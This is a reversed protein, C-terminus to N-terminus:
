TRAEPVLYPTPGAGGVAVTAAAVLDDGHQVLTAAVAVTPYDDVSGPTYRHYVSRRGAVLPVSVSTIIEDAELVTSMFGTALRHLPLTRRGHRGAVEVDAQHAILAPPLDQRPDSHALAGGITAVARIRTNGVADAAAAVAPLEAAVTPDAALARLTVGAGVVLRDGERRIRTLEPIRGLWVLTAPAVLGQGILLGVSTGGAVALADPAGLAEVAAEVTAPAIFGGDEDVRM